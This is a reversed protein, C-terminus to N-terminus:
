GALSLNLYKKQGTVDRRVVPALWAPPEVKTDVTPLEVEGLWLDRDLFQDIEWVFGDEEVRHRRKRVRCGETLAWLSEFLAESVTEEVETRRIGSGFKITRTYTAQGDEAIERRVRERIEGGPLWGQDIQVTVTADPLEPGARLLFKREIEVPGQAHRELKTALREVEVLFDAAGDGLWHQELDAFLAQARKQGRHTLEIIGSRETRRMERKMGELDGEGVLEHLRRAHEVAADELAVGLEDRLVRADNMDGLIDQLGKMRKVLRGAEPMFPRLPELLYRMRKGMIRAQHAEEEDRLSAVKALHLILEAAHERAKAAVAEAFTSETRPGGLHIEVRMTQLAERLAGEIAEFQGRIEENVNAMAGQRRQTLRDVMWQLGRRHAPSLADRQTELWEIAVEADRGGGTANQLSKLAARDRKHVTGKLRDKWARACSRLRRIGVRFDHLAEKDKPDDLRLSAAHAEDLFGLAIRRAGEEPSRMLLDPPLAM